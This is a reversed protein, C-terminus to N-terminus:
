QSILRQDLFLKADMKLGAFFRLHCRTKNTKSYCFCNIKNEKDGAIQKRTIRWYKWILSTDVGGGEIKKRTGSGTNKTTRNTGVRLLNSGPHFKDM